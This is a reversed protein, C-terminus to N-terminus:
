TTIEQVETKQLIPVFLNVGLSAQSALAMSPGSGISPFSQIKYGLEGLGM